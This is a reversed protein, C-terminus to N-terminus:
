FEVSVNFSGNDFDAAGSVSTLRVTTLEGTLAKYGGGVIAFAANSGGASLGMEWSTGSYNHLTMTGSLTTAASFVAAFLFGTSHNGATTATSDVMTSVGGVYGTAEIGGSDGLQIMAPSTTDHSMSAFHIVVRKAGAPITYDVATISGTSLSTVTDFTQIITKDTGADDTFVPTSPATNEVWFAGEGAATATPISAQEKLTLQSM